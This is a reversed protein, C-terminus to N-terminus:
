LPPAVVMVLVSIMRHSVRGSPTTTRVMSSGVWDALVRVGANTAARVSVTVRRRSRRSSIAPTTSVEAFGVNKAPPSRL